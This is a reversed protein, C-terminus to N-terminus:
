PLRQLRYLIPNNAFLQNASAALLSAASQPNNSNNSGGIASATANLQNAIDPFGHHHHHHHHNPDDCGAFSAALESAMGGIPIFGM